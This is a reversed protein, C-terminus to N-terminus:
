IEILIYIIKDRHTKNEARTCNGAQGRAASRAGAVLPLSTMEAWQARQEEATKSVHVTSKQRLLLAFHTFCM